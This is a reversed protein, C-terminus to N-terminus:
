KDNLKNIILHAFNNAGTVAKASTFSYINEKDQVSYLGIYELNSHKCLRKIGQEFPEAAYDKEYGNTTILAIKKGHWLSGTASGYYKNLGYHRDLLAKMPATCYWAFIPTALVICDAAIIKEMIKHVDDNIVCGYEGSVNQCAYCGKCPSINLDYLFIYETEVGHEELEEIFPKCLAATNGNKHPSGMLICVKKSITLNNDFFSNIKIYVNTESQLHKYDFNCDGSNQLQKLRNKSVKLIRSVIKETKIKLNYPNEITLNYTGDKFAFDKEYCVIEFDINNLNINAKNKAFIEKLTGTKLALNEDNNLFKNYKDKGINKLGIREYVSLNYTSKCKKCQYILWIDFKNANANVRFKNTSEFCANSGCKPCNRTITYSTKPIVTYKIKKYYSM